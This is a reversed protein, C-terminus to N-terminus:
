ACVDLWVSQKGLRSARGRAKHIRLPLKAQVFLINLREIRKRLADTTLPEEETLDWLEDITASTKGWLLRVIDSDKKTGLHALLLELPDTGSLFNQRKGYAWLAAAEPSSKSPKSGFDEIGNPANRKTNM